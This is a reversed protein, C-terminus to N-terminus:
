TSGGPRAAAAPRPGAAQAPRSPGASARSAAATSCAAAARRSPASGTPGAAPTARRTWSVSGLGLNLLLGGVGGRRGSERARARTVLLM